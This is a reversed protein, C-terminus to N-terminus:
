GGARTTTTSAPTTTTPTATTVRFRVHVRATTGTETPASVTGKIALNGATGSFPISGAHFPNPTATANVADTGYTGTVHIVVSFGGVYKNHVSGPPPVGLSETVTLNFPTGGLTGQWHGLYAGSPVTQHAGPETTATGANNPSAGTATGSLTLGEVTGSFAKPPPYVGGGPVKWTITATGSGPTLGNSKLLVVVVVVVAAVVV